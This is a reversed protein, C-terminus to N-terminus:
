TVSRFNGLFIKTFQFTAIKRFLWPNAVINAMRTNMLNACKKITLREFRSFSIGRGFAQQRPKCAAAFNDFISLVSILSNFFFVGKKSQCGLVITNVVYGRSFEYVLFSRSLTDGNHLSAPNTVINCHM